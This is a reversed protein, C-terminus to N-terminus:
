RPPGCTASSPWTAPSARRSTRSPRPGPRDFSLASPRLPPAGRRRPLHRVQDPLIYKRYYELADLNNKYNAYATALNNTLVTEVRHPEEGARVLAAEASIIAGKNQDWIPIPVGIQSARRPRSRRCPSTRRSPWRSVRRGSDLAHDAGAQPQLPGRRHRQPRYARRHPAAPRLGAGHRLRLLPHLRRHPRGGRDAAAPAPRRRRRAAELLLDYTQIAQNYALRATYAQARLAAPEYPAAQGGQELLDEQYLYVEDTFHALAKTVRVTEKAVLLAFYANRVQTALDSRARKLALEANELAKEAAAAALKLKGGTKITQDIQFGQAGSRAATAPRAPRTASRPTRSLGLGTAPQRPGGGRRLGGPAADPQQRRRHAAPRRAHVAPRGAGAAAGAGRAAASAAPLAESGRGGARGTGQAARAAAADRRRPPRRASKGAAPRGAAPNPPEAQM